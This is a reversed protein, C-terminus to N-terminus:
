GDESVRRPARDHAAALRKETLFVLAAAVALALLSVIIGARMGPTEYRMKVHHTGDAVAIGTFAVNATFTRAPAGDVTATWGTSYPVSLLLVGDGHSTVDGSLADSAVKVNRMGEAALTAVQGAYSTMPVAIVHLSSYHVDTKELFSIRAHTAGNPFYGLNILATRDGYYYGSAPSPMSHVKLPGDSQAGVRLRVGSGFTVGTMEVYLEADAVPAFTLDAVAGAKGVTVTRSSADWTM